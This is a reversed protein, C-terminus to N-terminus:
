ASLRFVSHTLFLLYPKCVNSILRYIHRCVQQLPKKIPTCYPISVHGCGGTYTNTCCSRLDSRVKLPFSYPFTQSIVSETLIPTKVTSRFQDHGIKHHASASVVSFKSTTNGLIQTWIRSRATLTAPRQLFIPKSARRRKLCDALYKSYTFSRTDYILHCTKV